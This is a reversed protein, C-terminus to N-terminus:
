NPVERIPELYQKIAELIHLTGEAASQTFDIGLNGILNQYGYVSIQLYKVKSKDLAM